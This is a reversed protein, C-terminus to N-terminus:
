RALHVGAGKTDSYLRLGDVIRSKGHTLPLRQSLARGNLETPRSKAAPDFATLAHGLALKVENAPFHPDNMRELKAEQKVHDLLKSM